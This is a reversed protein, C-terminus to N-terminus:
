VRRSRGGRGDPEERDVCVVRAVWALSGDAALVIRPPELDEWAHYSAGAFYGAFMAQVSDRPQLTVAGADISVLTDAVSSALLGADTELHARRGDALGRELAARAATNDSAPRPADGSGCGALLSLSGLLAFSLFAARVM